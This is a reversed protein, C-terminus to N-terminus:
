IWSAAGDVAMKLFWHLINATYVAQLLSDSNSAFMEKEVVM